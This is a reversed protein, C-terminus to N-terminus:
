FGSFATLADRIETISSCPVGEMNTSIPIVSLRITSVLEIMEIMCGPMDLLTTPAVVEFLVSHSSFKM